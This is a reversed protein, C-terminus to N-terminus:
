SVSLIELMKKLFTQDYKVNIWKAAVKRKKYVFVTNDAKPNIKYLACSEKDTPSPVWLLAVRNLSQSKCWKKLQEQLVYQGTANSITNESNIYILFVRLSKEGRKEMEKELSVALTNLENLDTNKFWLIIGQGFGYKCMPCVIKGADRGSLHMPDFAPCNDGLDLGSKIEKSEAKPYDPINRGLYIDRVSYWIGDKKELTLIGNGGRNELKGREASSLFPDDDFVFEDIYYDNKGPEKIIPHIHAPNNSNPYSAPKLTYFKYQGKENTKMWGKIYGNRAGIGKEHYRNTYHGTQDTHYVYLVVDRAPTIGDQQYVTGSIMLKPGTENFDPLTDIWSLKEFPVPSEYIAECGDCPGGIKRNSLVNKKGDQSLSQFCQTFSLIVCLLLMSFIFKM